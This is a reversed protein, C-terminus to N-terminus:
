EAPNCYSIAVVIGGDPIPLTVSQLVGKGYVGQGPIAPYAVCVENVHALAYAAMGNVPTPGNPSSCASVVVMCLLTIGATAVRVLHLLMTAPKVPVSQSAGLKILKAYDEVNM